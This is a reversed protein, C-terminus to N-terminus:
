SVLTRVLQQHPLERTTPAKLPPFMTKKVYLSIGVMCVCFYLILCVLRRITVIQRFSETIMYLTRSIFENM